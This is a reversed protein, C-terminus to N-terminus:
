GLKTEYIQMTPMCGYESAATIKESLIKILEYESEDLEMQTITYDDCGIVEIQYLKKM